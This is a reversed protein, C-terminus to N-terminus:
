SMYTRRDTHGDRGAGGERQKWRERGRGGETNMEGQGEKERRGGEKEAITRIHTHVHARLLSFFLTSFFLM